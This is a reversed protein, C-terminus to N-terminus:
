GQQYGIWGRCNESGCNCSFGNSVGSETALYNITIEEGADINCLAVLWRDVFYSHPSCSHNLDRLSGSPEINAGNLTLSYRSPHDIKNGEFYEIKEGNSIPQSAFLGKGQIKSAQVMVQPETVTNNRGQGSM